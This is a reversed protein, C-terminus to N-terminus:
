VKNRIKKRYESPTMGTEKRFVANFTSKSSFGSDYMVENIRLDKEADALLEKAVELRYQNVFDYFNKGALQNIVQSIHRAGIGTQEALQDITLNYELYSKELKMHEHLEDLYKEAEKKELNSHRYRDDIDHSISEEEKSIGAFFRPQKLGKWYISNLFILVFVYISLVVANYFEQGSDILAELLVVMFIVAISLILYQLWSLDISLVESSLNKLNRRFWIVKRYTWALYLMVQAVVLISFVPDNIVKAYMAPWIVVTIIAMCAPLFHWADGKGFDRDRYILSRTYLLCLPGYSLGFVGGLNLHIVGQNLLLMNLFNLSLSLILLALIQNFRARRTRNALLNFVFLFGQYVILLGILDNIYLSVRPM